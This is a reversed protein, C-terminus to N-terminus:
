TFNIKMVMGGVLPNAEVIVKSIEEGIYVVASRFVGIM